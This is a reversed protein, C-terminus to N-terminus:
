LYRIDNSQWLRSDFLLLIYWQWIESCSNRPLRIRLSPFVSQNKSRKIARGISSFFGRRSISRAAHENLALQTPRPGDSLLVNQPAPRGLLKSERSHVDPHIRNGDPSERKRLSFHTQSTTPVPAALAVFDFSHIYIIIFTLVQARWITLM